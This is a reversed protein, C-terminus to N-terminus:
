STREAHIVESRGDDRHEDDLLTVLRAVRRDFDEPDRGAKCWLARPDQLCALLSLRPESSAARRVDDDDDLLTAKLAAAARISFLDDDDPHVFAKPNMIVRPFPGPMPEEAYMTGHVTVGNVLLMEDNQLTHQRRLGALPEDKTLAKKLLPWRTCASDRRLRERLAAIVVLHSADYVGTAGRAPTLEGPTCVYIAFSLQLAVMRLLEDALADERFCGVGFQDLIGARGGDVHAHRPTPDGAKQGDTPFVVIGWGNKEGRLTLSIRRPLFPGGFLLRLRWHTKWAGFHAKGTLSPDVFACLVAQAEYQDWVAIRFDQRDDNPIHTYAHARGNPVNKPWTEPRTSGFETKHAKQWSRELWPLYGQWARAKEAASNSTKVVVSGRVALTEALERIRRVEAERWRAYSEYAASGGLYAAPVSALAVGRRWM